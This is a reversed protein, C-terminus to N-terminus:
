KNRPSIRKSEVYASMKELRESEPLKEIELPEFIGFAQKFQVLPDLHAAYNWSLCQMVGRRRPVAVSFAELQLGEPLGAYLEGGLNMSQKTNHLLMRSIKLMQEDGSLLYLRYYAFASFAFGLDAGSHGSAIITQGIISREEPFDCAGSGIEAPVEYSYMWTASYRAAQIACGLWRSEGTMDFLALFANIAMQGSERDIMNPNDIVSGIYKYPEHINKLSFYGAKLATARFAENGTAMYLECLFRVPTTTTFKSENAPPHRGDKLSHRYALYFSGDKNQNSALWDGFRVCADLWADKETGNTHATRWASLMAEMGGSAVRMSTGGSNNDSPRWSGTKDPGKAPDYWTRPLGSPLLSQEAWFDLVAEGKQIMAEDKREFGEYLLYYADPIQCGIFGMQYNYARVKGSPLYVSFPLGPADYGAGSRDAPTYYTLITDLLGNYARGLDVELVPPNAANFVIGWANCVAGAYSGNNGFDILLNYRHVTEENVPHSRLTLSAGGKQAADSPRRGSESGPYIFGVGAREGGLVGLSGFRMRSDVVLNRGRDGTFTDPRADKHFLSVNSGGNNLHMMALPLPLRDERYFLGGEVFSGQRCAALADKFDTRYWIAPIFFECKDVNERYRVAFISSYYKDIKSASTIQVNRKLEFAGSGSPCYSDTVYFETGGASTFRAACLLEGGREKCSDYLHHEAAGGVELSVPFGTEYTTFSKDGYEFTIYFSSSDTSKHTQLLADGSKLSDACFCLKASVITILAVMKFPNGAGHTM